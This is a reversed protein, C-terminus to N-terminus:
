ASVQVSANSDRLRADLFYTAIVLTGFALLPLSVLLSLFAFLVASKTWLFVMAVPARLAFGLMLNLAFLAAAIGVTRWFRRRNLARALASRVATFARQDEDVAIFLSWSFPISLLFAAVLGFAVGFGVGIGVIVPANRSTAAIFIIPILVVFISVLAIAFVAAWVGVVGLLRGFRAFGPAVLSALSPTDRGAILGRLFAPYLAVAVLSSAAMTGWVIAFSERHPDGGFVNWLQSLVPAPSGTAGSSTAVISEQYYDFWASPQALIAALLTYQRWQRIYATLARDFIEGVSM